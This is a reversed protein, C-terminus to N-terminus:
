ERCRGRFGPQRRCRLVARPTGLGLGREHGRPHGSGLRPRPGVALGRRGDAHEVHLAGAGARREPRRPPAQRHASPLPRVPGAGQRPPGDGEPGRHGQEGARHRRVGARPPRAHRPEEPGGPLLAAAERARADRGSRDGRDLYLEACQHAFRVDPKLHLLREFSRSPTTAGGSSSWSSRGRRRVRQIAGRRGEHALAGRGPPPAAAPEDPRPRRDEASTSRRGRGKGPAPAPERNRRARRPRRQHPRAAPLDRRPASHHARVAGRASPRAEVIMERIQKYVAIAKLAFGQHAYFKGVREYTAIADPLRADELLPRRDQAADARRESGGAVIKQYEVVAKDYKKKEVFKQAAAQVKDRDIAM